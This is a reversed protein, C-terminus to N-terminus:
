ESEVPKCVFETLIRIREKRATTRNSATRAYEYYQNVEPYKNRSEDNDVFNLFKVLKETLLELPPLANNRKLDALMGFLSYFDAQNRFRSKIIRNDNDQEIISKIIGVVDKYSNVVENQQDWEMDRNSFAENLDDISYGKPGEEVLLLLQSLLEVDKMKKRYQSSIRPFNQYLQSFLHESMDEASTIFCGSYKAHRLEQSTLKSVNRNIRDFINSIVSGETTSLYEVSFTYGWFNKKIDSPLEDFYRGQLEVRLTEDSVPYNGKVFEFITTLRQLGDVVHYLATGNDSIEEYLFIAPAPYGMLITDIFYDRYAQNWVSRRQYPPALDLLGRNYLDNFWAITQFNQKRM